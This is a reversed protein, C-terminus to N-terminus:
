NREASFKAKQFRKIAAIIKRRAYARDRWDKVKVSKKELNKYMSFFHSIEQLIHPYIDSYNSVGKFRPDNEGVAIVKEDRLGQDVVELVGIPRIEMVCGTVSPEDVMVLVDLGDGDDGLTGPIFGYDGPYHVPSHLKRDLRFIHLRKDQEYKDTSQFPIEIVANVIDPAKEGM